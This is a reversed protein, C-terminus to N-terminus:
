LLQLYVQDLGLRTQLDEMYRFSVVVILSSSQFFYSLTSKFLPANIMQLFIAIFQVWWIDETVGDEEVQDARVVVEEVKSM